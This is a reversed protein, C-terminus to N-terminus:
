SGGAHLLADRFAYPFGVSKRASSAPATSGRPEKFAGALLGAEVGVLSSYARWNSVM